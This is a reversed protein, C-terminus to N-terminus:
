YTCNYPKLEEGRFWEMYGDFVVPETFVESDTITADWDLRNGDATVTYHEIVELQESQPTGRDDFYAYDINTTEVVLTDSEWRGVSHGMLTRGSPAPADTDMLITRVADWEEYRIVINGNEESFGIPFPNDIIVPMGPTECLLAPDDVLPDYEAVAAKASETLPWFYANNGTEPRGRPTWVKFLGTGRDAAAAEASPKDFALGNPDAAELGLRSAILTFLSVREGSPTVAVAAAMTNSGNRAVPGIFTMEDGIQFSDRAVGNRELVNIASAELQWIEGTGAAEVTLRIHPNIWDVDTVTGAVEQVDAFDYIAAVSHHASALIPLAALVFAVTTLKM